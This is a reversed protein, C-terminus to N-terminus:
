KSVYIFKKSFVQMSIPAILFGLINGIFFSVVVLAIFSDSIKDTWAVNLDKWHFFGYGLHIGYSLMLFNGGAIATQQPRIHQLKHLFNISSKSEM